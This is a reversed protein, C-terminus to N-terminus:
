KHAYERDSTLTYTHTHTRLKDVGNGRFTYYGDFGLSLRPHHWFREFRVLFHIRERERERIACQWRAM